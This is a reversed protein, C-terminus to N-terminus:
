EWRQIELLMGGPRGKEMESPYLGVRFVKNGADYYWIYYNLPEQRREAEGPSDYAYGSSSHLRGGAKECVYWVAQAYGDVITQTVAEDLDFSIRWVKTEEDYAFEERATGYPRGLDELGCSEALKETWPARSAEMLVAPSRGAYKEGPGCGATLAVVLVTMAMLAARTLAKKRM